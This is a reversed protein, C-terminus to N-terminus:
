RVINVLEALIEDTTTIVRSNAQFGRQAEILKVFEEAIDVNSNQNPFVAIRLTDLTQSQGNSYFGVLDGTENFALNLLSGPGYGDQDTAAVTTASGLMTVGDFQSSTGLDVAVSQAATIGNFSFSFTNNGGGIVNFSGDPNFRISNVTNGSITGENPDMSATLDWVSPDTASRTFVFDVSHARGLSDIVEISAPATDPGSGDQVLSFSPWDNNAPNTANTIDGISISMDAPAGNVATFVLKGASDLSVAAQSAPVLSNIFNVLDGMNTGDNGIGYVFTASFPSGDPNTGQVRIQDGNTYPIQLMTMGSLDTASTAAAQSGSVQVTSLGMAALLGTSSPDDDFKIAASDGLKQTNFTLDGTGNNGTVAMAPSLGAFLAAIESPTAAAINAFDTPDFAVQQQSSQNVRVLMNGPVFGTLDYTTGGGPPTTSQTAPQGALFETASEVIEQLPGSVTAPLSGSFEISNTQAAPLTDTVPVSISGGGAGLVRYGTRIDVLQRADDVGFSGVRSYFNQVGDTTTFFGNGQIAVDMARGTDQFTGQNTNVDISAIASGLGIQKPNTGGLNGNPGSGPNLTFSLMDSFTVRSGRYGPTSVNALNSGIVDIFTQHSRLGALGTFLSTNVM